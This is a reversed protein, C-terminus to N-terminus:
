TLIETNEFWQNMFITEIWVFINKRTVHLTNKRVSHWREDKREGVVIEPVHLV